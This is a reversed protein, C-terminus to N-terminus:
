ALIFSYSSGLLCGLFFNSELDLETGLARSVPGPLQALIVVQALTQTGSDETRGSEVSNPDRPAKLILGPVRRADQWCLSAYESLFVEGDVPIGCVRPGRERKSDIGGM